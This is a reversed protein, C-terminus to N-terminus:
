GRVTERPFALLFQIHAQTLILRDVDLATGAVQEATIETLDQALFQRWQLVPLVFIKM